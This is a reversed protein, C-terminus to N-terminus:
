GSSNCIEYAVLLKKDVFHKQYQSTFIMTMKTTMGSVEDGGSPVNELVSDGLYTMLQNATVVETKAPIKVRAQLLLVNLIALLPCPGNENQTIIPVLKQKFYIWKIHYISDGASLAGAYDKSATVQNEKDSVTDDIQSESGIPQTNSVDDNNDVDTTKRADIGDTDKVLGNHIFNSDTTEKGKEEATEQNNESASGTLNTNCETVDDSETQM